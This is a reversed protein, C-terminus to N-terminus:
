RGAVKKFAKIGASVGFMVALVSAAIPVVAAIAGIADNAATTLGQTLATIVTASASGEM